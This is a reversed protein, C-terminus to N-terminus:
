HLLSCSVFHRHGLRFGVLVLEYRCLFHVPPPKPYVVVRDIDSSTVRGKRVDNTWLIENTHENNQCAFTLM